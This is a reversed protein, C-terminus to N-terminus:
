REEGHSVHRDVTEYLNEPRRRDHKYTLTNPELRTFREVVHLREVSGSVSSFAAWPQLARVKDVDVFNTTDVALTSGDWHGRSDGNWQRVDHPIHPRGDLPILRMEHIEELLIANEPLSDM